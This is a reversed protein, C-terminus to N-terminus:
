RRRRPAPRKKKGSSKQDSTNEVEYVGDIKKVKAAFKEPAQMFLVGLKGLEGSDVKVQVQQELGERRALERILEMVDKAEQTFDRKRAGKPRVSLSYLYVKAKGNENFEKSTKSAM